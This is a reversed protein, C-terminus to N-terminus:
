TTQPFHRFQHRLGHQKECPQIECVFHGERHMCTKSTKDWLGSEKLCDADQNLGGLAFKLSTPTTRVAALVVAKDSAKINDSAFDLFKGNLQVMGLIFDRDDFRQNRVRNPLRLGQSGRYRLKAPLLLAAVTINPHWDSFVPLLTSLFQRRWHHRHCHLWRYGYLPARPPRKFGANDTPSHMRSIAPALCPRCYNTEPLTTCFPRHWRWVRRWSM